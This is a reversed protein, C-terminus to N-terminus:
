TGAPRDAPPFADPQAVSRLVRLHHLNVAVGDPGLAQDLDRHLQAVNAGAPVSLELCTAFTGAADNRVGYLDVVDIGDHALRHAVRRLVGKRDQGSLRLLYPQVVAPEDLAEAEPEAAPDRLTVEVGFPRCVARIHEVIVEPSRDPPFEVAMIMTFYRRMVAQSVDVFSGGLEDLATALAALIGVRNVAMLTMVYQKPM